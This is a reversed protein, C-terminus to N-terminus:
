KSPGPTIVNSTVGFPGFELAAGASIADVGAKAAAAHTQLPMGTYHFTVSIFIIRGGTSPNVGTNPNKTASTLLHPLTAKLTNYSGLTDIDMVTKFANSSLTSIPSLFNGAAGASNRLAVSLRKDKCVV